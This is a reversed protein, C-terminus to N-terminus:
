EPFLKQFKGYAAHSIIVTVNAAGEEPIVDVDQVTAERHLWSLQPGELPVRLTHAHRGTAALVAAELGQQLEQLGQGLLASVALAGPESPSYGSVLDVKNHVEVMSSLLSAPLHLDHLTSLVTAKQLETEPHSVDRVHAILDARAVDQLTATFSAILQHPLQSLFGVTDLYIIPLRSPLLGGHATVDLTAFLQDRPRAAEDGTLARILTTKGCNTYGVFAVVPVGRAQRQRGLLQRKGRLRELATRLKLEKEKLVRQRTQLPSEGSGMIYRSGGGQRDQGTVDRRLNARLLPIEALAVQLRAERTRANARFIHLAVIFRDLVQVGWMAELEKQTLPAMREVNVFVATLDRRGCIRQTPGPTYSPAPPLAAEASASPSPIIPPPHSLRRKSSSYPHPQVLPLWMRSHVHPCPDAHDGIKAYVRPHLIILMPHPQLPQPWAQCTEGCSGAQPVVSAGSPPLQLGAELVAGQIPIATQLSGSLPLPHDCRGAVSDPRRAEGRGDRRCRLASGSLRELTGRGFVLKGDPTKTPVVETHVVSWGHLTHVLSRAEAVQWEARTLQPKRAGWKVDPHVLCVRQVGVTLLLPEQRLLDEEEEDEDWESAAGEPEEGPAATRWPGRGGRRQGESGPSGSGGASLVRVPGCACPPLASRAPLHGRSVFSVRAARVAARLTWM